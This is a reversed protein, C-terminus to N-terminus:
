GWDYQVVHALEHMLLDGGERTELHAADVAVYVHSVITFGRAALADCARRAAADTHLQVHDFGHDFLYAFRHQMALPLAQGHSRAALELASASSVAVAGTAARAIVAARPDIGPPTTRPQKGPDAALNRGPSRTTHLSARFRDIAGRADRTEEDGSSTLTERWLERAVHAPLGAAAAESVPDFPADDARENDRRILREM